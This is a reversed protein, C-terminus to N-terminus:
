KGYLQYIAWNVFRKPLLRQLVLFLKYQFGVTVQVPMSKRRILRSVIKAVSDPSKGHQEDHEMKRVSRSVRESYVSTDSNANKERNITFDTKTDGPLITCVDVGLPKLEMRLTESFAAVSAKTMSYFAQFPIVLSGAVSGINIIKANPRTRLLPLFAKTVMFMGKININFIKDFQTESTEEIAGSIGMGACNILVDIEGEKQSIEAVLSDIMAPKTIDCLLYHFAYDRKPYNRSVGYVIHGEQHLRSAIAFGIGSSAGTILIVKASM